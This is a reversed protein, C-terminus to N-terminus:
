LGVKDMKELVDTMADITYDIRVTNEILSDLVNKVCEIVIEYKATNQDMNEMNEEVAISEKLIENLCEQIRSTEVENLVRNEKKAKSLIGKVIRVNTRVEM